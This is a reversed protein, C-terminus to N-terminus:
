REKENLGPQQYIGVLNGAPDRITGLVETGYTAVPLVIEGGAAVVQEAVATADAAM